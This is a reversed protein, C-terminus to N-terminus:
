APIWTRVGTDNYRTVCTVVYQKAEQKEQLEVCAIHPNCICVSQQHTGQQADAVDRVVPLPVRRAARYAHARQWQLVM